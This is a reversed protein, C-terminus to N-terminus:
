SRLNRNSATEGDTSPSLFDACKRFDRAWEELGSKVVPDDFRAAARQLYRIGRNLLALAERDSRADRRALWRIVILHPLHAPHASCLLSNWHRRSVARRLSRPTLGAQVGASQILRQLLPHSPLPASNM